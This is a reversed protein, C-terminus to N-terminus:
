NNYPENQVLLRNSNLVNRHIPWYYKRKDTGWGTVTSGALTQRARVIPEMIEMVRDTRVLDFWRKGEGLLEYQREQLIATELTRTDTYNAALLAPLNARTRILNVYKLSNTKDGIQNLAEAYLLYMDSLRYVPIYVNTTRTAAPSGTTFNYNTVPNTGPPTFTGTYFKWLNADRIATSTGTTNFTQKARFDVTNARWSTWLGDAMRSVSNNTTISIGSMCACGNAIYDWHISFISEVSAPPNVFQNNWTPGTQLDAALGGSGTTLTGTANYVKGTPGKAKFLNKLWVIANPYDKRWMYIDAMTACIAGEGMYWVTPTANKAIMDYAKQLDAIAQDLVKDQPQQPSEPDETISEYPETRIPANGWVRAIWFYCLGRMAYCQAIYNTETALPLENPTGALAYNKIEPLRKIMLNARGITSYLFSWDSFTNNASLSNFDIENQSATAYQVRREFNDSRAEGWWTIRNESQTGDGRIMTSQFEGYMGAMAAEADFRTRFFDKALGQSLPEENVLKKCSGLVLLVGLIAISYIKKM